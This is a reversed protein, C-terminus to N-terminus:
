QSKNLFYLAKKLTMVGENYLEKGELQVSIEHFVSHM